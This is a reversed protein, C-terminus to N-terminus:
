FDRHDIAQRKSRAEKEPIRCMASYVSLFNEWNRQLVQFIIILMIFVISETQCQPSLSSIVSGMKERGWITGEVWMKYVVVVVFFCFCFLLLFCSFFSGKRQIGDERLPSRKLVLYFTERLLHTEAVSRGREFNNVSRLVQLRLSRRHYFLEEHWPGM